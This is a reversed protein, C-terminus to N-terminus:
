SPIETITFDECVKTQLELMGATHLISPALLLKGLDAGDGVPAAHVREEDGEGDEVPGAELVHPVPPVPLM